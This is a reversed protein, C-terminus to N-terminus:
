LRGQLRLKLLRCLNAIADKIVSYNVSKSPNSYTIPIESINLKRCYAKIETQFFHGQSHIGKELVMQLSSRTFLEFGSTMDKLKTGLFLNTVITGVKSIFFRKTNGGVFTGGTCFRSGFVCDYGRAMVQMFLPIESPCHSFGADIELIWDCGASMAERYGRIYADVVCRNEPAWIVKLDSIKNKMRNIFSLTKDTSKNDLIAFFTVKKFGKCEDLVAPIFTEVTNEENAMPCIIGLAINHFRQMVGKNQGHKLM